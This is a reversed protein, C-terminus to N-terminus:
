DQSTVSVRLPSLTDLHVDRQPYAIVIDSERCLRDIRFRLDSRIMRLQMELGVNAWFYVDFILANDGFDEFIIVPKPDALINEHEEAARRILEAVRDTPSGYQVGVRVTSRINRDVLTWNVVINELMVSNPVLMDVGDTRRIRACRAGISKVTGLQKEVEVLDGIRVPRELMLIWGSIFNNIINQAGFGVGIAVAGGLFAFMTIPVEMIQLTTLLLTVLLTYFLVKQVAHGAGAGVRQQIRRGIMKAIIASVILGLALVVIALVLQSTHIDRGDGIQILRANWIRDLWHELASAGTNVAPLIM